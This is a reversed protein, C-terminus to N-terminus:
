LTWRKAFLQAALTADVPWALTIERTTESLFRCYLSRDGDGALGGSGSWSEM